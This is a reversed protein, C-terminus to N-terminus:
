TAWIRPLCADRRALLPRLICWLSCLIGKLPEIAASLCRVVLLDGILTVGVRMEGPESLAERAADLARTDAGTVVFTGCVPFGGLGSPGDLDAEGRVRLRDTLLPRSGRFLAFGLDAAGVIFREDVVPRGLSHMEWGMFSADRELEVDTSIRM